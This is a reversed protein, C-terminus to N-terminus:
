PRDHAQGSLSKFCSPCCWDGSVVRWGTLRAEKAANKAGFAGPATERCANRGDPLIRKVVGFYACRAECWLLPESM